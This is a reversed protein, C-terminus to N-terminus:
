TGGRYLASNYLIQALSYNPAKVEFKILRKVM